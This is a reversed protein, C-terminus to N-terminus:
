GYVGSLDVTGSGEEYPGPRVCVPPHIGPHSDAQGERSWTSLVYGGNLGWSDEAEHSLIDSHYPALLAFTLDGLPHPPGVSVSYVKQGM